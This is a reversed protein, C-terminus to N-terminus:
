APTTADHRQVRGRIYVDEGCQQVHGRALERAAAMANFGHGGVPSKADAGGVIRPAVFVHIEDMADLDLLAGFVGAGGEVLVNTMQRRGLEDLLEGLRANRDASASRWVEVGRASLERCKGAPASPSVAILTPAEAATRVLQSELSITARSDLVIRTATRAGRPRATLLPDDAAATGRGVLIADVRGRIQHVVARAPEGSIWRSDGAHTALKGDLTMAWKAIIWPRRAAILKAFPAILDAAEDGLVGVEVTIKAAALAAFGGGSVAPNPDGCAAVVRSVGAAVLSQTCPPTKGAHNCPELTVYATAGRAADGAAALANVEAHPGGFQQHWGEGVIRGERVLACGVMPNPEVRGEGRRALELARMMFRRDDDASM